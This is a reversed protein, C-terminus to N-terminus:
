KGGQVPPIAALRVSRRTALLKQTREDIAALREMVKRDALTLEPADAAILEGEGDIMGAALLVDSENPDVAGSALIPFGPNNVALAAVLELNGDIRRWDGSIPSRRLEAVKADSVGPVLIGSYWIGFRDEGSAGISVVTGTNDYHDAAPIYGYRTDAHGTGMTIKGVEVISGDATLVTGSRFYKYGTRSKPAMVCQNGIGTHCVGWAAIHGFVRGDATVVMKTKGPLNPNQFVEAPPRVPVDIAAVLEDVEAETETADPEASATTTQEETNGGRLWPPKTRPDGWADQFKEYIRTVVGKLELKEDEDVVGELGGHAGALIAAAAFIAHPILVLHGNVIDGVTLRYSATNNAPGKADRWLFASNYKEVSSGAWAKIRALAQDNNFVTAREAIPLRTWSTSNVTM